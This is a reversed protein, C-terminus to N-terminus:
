CISRRGKRRGVWGGREERMGKVEGERRKCVKFYVSLIREGISRLQAAFLLTQCTVNYVSRACLELVETSESKALEMVTSLVGLELLSLVHLSPSPSSTLHSSIVDFSIIHYPIHHSSLLHSSIRHSTLHSKIHHILFFIFLDSQIPHSISYYPIPHSLLLHPLICSSNNFICFFSSMHSQHSVIIYCIVIRESQPVIRVVERISQNASLSVM